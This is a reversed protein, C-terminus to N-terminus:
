DTKISGHYTKWYGLVFVTCFVQVLLGNWVYVDRGLEMINLDKKNWPQLLGM